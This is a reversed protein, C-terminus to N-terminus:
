AKGGPASGEAKRDWVGAPLGRKRLEAKQVKGTQTKPLDSAIAIFRPQAFRPLEREAHEFLERPTLTIEGDLVVSVMVEDEGGTIESAVAYAAAEVVGERSLLAQEVEFSSINHGRHRICDRIRDVFSLFGNEDLLGADGTHFWLSQWAELTKEPLNFYGPCLASHHRRGCM